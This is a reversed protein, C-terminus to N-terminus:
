RRITSALTKESVFLGVMTPASTDLVTVLFTASAVREDGLAALHGLFVAATIGGACAAGVHLKTDGSIELVVDSAEELASVYTGLGWERQAPTANRWSVAFVQFGQQVAHEILSRGPALDLAYYKNIQPPIMLIPRELVKATTPQYQILELVDNRFVVQGPTAAVNEGVRFARGDVQSPMGGHTRLDGVFHRLGTWLSAGGTEFARKLAAPNGLLTNTPAAAETLLSVAFRGRDRSKADLDVEDVLQHLAQRWALYGQMLRRYLPNERFATDEFRRDGPEATRTSTGRAVQWLEKALSAARRGLVRPEVLGKVLVRSGAALLQSRDMVVLPNVAMASVLARESLSEQSM